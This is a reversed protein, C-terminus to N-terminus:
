KNLFERFEVPVKQELGQLWINIKDTIEKQKYEEKGQYSGMSKLADIKYKLEKITEWKTKPNISTIEEGKDFASPKKEELAQEFLTKSMTKREQIM